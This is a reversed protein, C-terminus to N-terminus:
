EPRPLTAIVLTVTEYPHDAMSDYM